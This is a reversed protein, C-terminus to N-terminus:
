ESTSAPTSAKLQKMLNRYRFKFRRYTSDNKGKVMCLYNIKGNIVKALEVEQGGRFDRMYIIRAEAYGRSEWLHMLVRLQKVYSRSVNVKCGVTLGTVEHRKGATSLVTKKPNIDFGCDKIISIIANSRIPLAPHTDAVSSFTIDDAYRSYRYGNKEAFVRLRQDLRKVVINSVVPSTPAGQPLVETGNKDPVTVLNALIDVVRHSANYKRLENILSGRVMEKSISPFFDQLDCNFIVKSGLHIKANTVISRGPVFGTAEPSVECLSQLLINISQQIHKLRIDPASIRRAGGSKKPIEFEFYAKERANKSLFRMVKDESLSNVGWLGLVAGCIGLYKVLATPSQLDVDALYPRLAELETMASHLFISTDTARRQLHRIQANKRPIQARVCLHSGFASSISRVSVVPPRALASGGYCVNIHATRAPKDGAKTFLM